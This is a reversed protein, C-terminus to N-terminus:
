FKAQTIHRTKALSIHLAAKNVTQADANINFTKVTNQSPLDSNGRPNKAAQLDTKLIRSQTLHAQRERLEKPLPILVNLRRNQHHIIRNKIM